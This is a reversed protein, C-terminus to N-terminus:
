RFARLHCESYISLCQFTDQSLDILPRMIPMQHRQLSEFRLVKLHEIKGRHLPKCM